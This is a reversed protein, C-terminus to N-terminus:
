KLVDKILYASEAGVIKLDYNDTARIVSSKGGNEEYKDVFPNGKLQLTYGFCPEYVSAAIGTPNSNYALIINNGWIPSLTTGDDDLALAGGVLINPIGFIEKLININALGLTTNALRDLIAAHNLLANFVKESLIMTNPDKAIIGKLIAKKAYIVSIPDVGTDDFHSGTTLAVKNATPYTALAQVLDAIQKEQTLALGQTTDTTAKKELNLISESSELYDIVVELDYEETSYAITDFDGLDFRNSKGRIARKAGYTKFQEKGFVPIKGATKEVIVKPMIKTGILEANSYGRALGTLLPDVGRLKDLRGM